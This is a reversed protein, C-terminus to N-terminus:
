STEDIKIVYFFFILFYPEIETRQAFLSIDNQIIYIDNQRFHATFESYKSIIIISRYMCLISMLAHPIHCRHTTANKHSYKLWVSELLVHGIDIYVYNIYTLCKQQRSAFCLDQEPIWTANLTWWASSSWSSRQIQM